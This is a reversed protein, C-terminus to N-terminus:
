IWTQFFQVHHPALAAVPFIFVLDQLLGKVKEIRELFFKILLLEKLLVL